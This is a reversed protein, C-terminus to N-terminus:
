NASPLWGWRKGHKIRWITSQSVNYKKAIKEQSINQLLLKRIEFVQEKSLKLSQKERSCLGTNYAHQINESFSCWELNSVSNDTKIGNKHNIYRYNNPNPIFHEGVIRHIYKYSYVGNKSLLIQYYGGTHKRPILFGGHNRNFRDKREISKVRGYSSIEYLGEFDKIPLFIEM